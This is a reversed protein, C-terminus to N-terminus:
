ELYAAFCGVEGDHGEIGSHGHSQSRQPCILGDNEDEAAIRSWRKPPLNGGQVFQGLLVLALNIEVRDVDQLSMRRIYPLHLAVNPILDQETAGAVLFLASRYSAFAHPFQADLKGSNDIAEVVLNLGGVGSPRVAHIQDCGIITNEILALRSWEPKM